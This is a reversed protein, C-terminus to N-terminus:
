PTKGCPPKTVSHSILSGTTRLGLSSAGVVMATMVSAVMVETLSVVGAQKHHASTHRKTRLPHFTENSKRYDDPPAVPPPRMRLAAASAAAAQFMLAACSCGATAQSDQLSNWGQIKSRILVTLNGVKASTGPPTMMFNSKTVAVEVAQTEPTGERSIMRYTPGNICGRQFQLM